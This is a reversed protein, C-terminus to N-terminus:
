STPPERLPGIRDADVVPPLCARALEALQRATTEDTIQHRRKEIRRHLTEIQDSDTLETDDLARDLRERRTLMGFFDSVAPPATRHARLRELLADFGNKELPKSVYDQIPLEAVPPDPPTATVMGIPVDIGKARITWAVEDGDAGPLDRDLLVIDPAVESARDKANEGNGVTLIEHRDDLYRRYLQRLGTDDEVVLVTLSDGM